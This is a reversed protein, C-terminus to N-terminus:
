NAVEPPFGGPPHELDNLLARAAIVMMAIKVALLAEGVGIAATIIAAVIQGLLLLAAFFVGWWSGSLLRKILALLFRTEFLARIVGKFAPWAASQFTLGPGTFARVVTMIRTIIPAIVTGVQAVTGAVFVVGFLAGILTVCDLVIQITWTTWPDLEIDSRYIEHPGDAAHYYYVPRNAELRVEIHGTRVNRAALEAAIRVNRAFEARLDSALSEPLHVLFAEYWQLLDKQADTAQAAVLPTEVDIGHHVALAKYEHFLLTRFSSVDPPHAVAAAAVESPGLDIGETHEIAGNVVTMLSGNVTNAVDLVLDYSAVLGSQGIPEAGNMYNSIDAASLAVGWVTFAQMSGGQGNRSDAFFPRHYIDPLAATTAAALAGNLYLSLTSTNKDYTVAVHTWPANPWPASLWAQYVSKWVGISMQGQNQIISVIFQLNADQDLSYPAFYSNAVQPVSVWALLSWSQDGGGAPIPTESDPAGYGGPQIVLAPLYTLLNPASIPINPNSSTVASAAFDFGVVLGSALASGSQPPGWEPSIMLDRTLAASWISWSGFEIADAQAGLGCTGQALPVGTTIVTWRNTPIGDIYFNLYGASGSAPNQAQEFTVAVYHWDTDTIAVQSTASHPDTTTTLFTGTVYGDTGITLAFQNAAFFISQAAPAPSATLRLWGGVTFLSQSGNVTQGSFNVPLPATITAVNNSSGPAIATYQSPTAM